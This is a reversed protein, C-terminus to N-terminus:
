ISPVKNNCSGNWWVHGRASLKHASSTTTERAAVMHSNSAAKQSFMTSGGRQTTMAVELM